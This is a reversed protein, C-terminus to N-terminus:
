RPRRMPQRRAPRAQWPLLAPSGGLAVVAAELAQKAAAPKLAAPCRRRRAWRSWTELRTVHHGRETHVRESHALLRLEIEKAAAGSVDIAPEAELADLLERAKASLGATQWPERAGAVGRLAPWLSRHVFTLKGGVLKAVVVDAHVTVEEFAAFLRHSDPHSWWSGSAKEGTLVAIADPLRADQLLLLGCRDLEQLLAAPGKV